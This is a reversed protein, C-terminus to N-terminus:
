LYLDLCGPTARPEAQAWAKPILQWCAINTGMRELVGKFMEVPDGQRGQEWEVSPQMSQNAVLAGPLLRGAQLEPISAM